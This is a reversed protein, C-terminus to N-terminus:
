TGVITSENFLDALLDDKCAEFDPDSLSYTREYVHISLHGFFPRLLGDRIDAQPLVRTQDGSLWPKRVRHADNPAALANGISFPTHASKPVEAVDMMSQAVEDILATTEWDEPRYIADVTDTVFVWEQAQFDEHNILLLVDLLKAAQLLSYNNYASPPSDDHDDFVSSFTARLETSIMPWFSAMQNPSSELVLARIVMYIEARTASSPSSIFSASLLEELKTQLLGLHAAFTDNEVALLVCSVRRLNLQAKKDSELRAATAGVGFMIGAATPASLRSLLEPLLSKEAFALQRLLPLWGVKVIPMQSCFFRPDNFSDTLEKKWAKTANPIRSIKLLLSLTTTTLNQPFQRSRFMPAIVNSVVNVVVAILRDPDDLLASLAAFNEHLTEEVNDSGMGAALGSPISPGATKERSSSQLKITFIATLLRIFLDALERRMKREEGFNTNEMKASLISVFGILRTLILRHPMPNGLVDRLFTTCDRWIEELVDDELSHAYVGLFAILDSEHLDSSLTSKQSLPLATPNTRSYIANFIAAMTIGPRSGQLTHVLSLLSETKVTEREVLAKVWVHALAEIGELPEAALLNELIRRSRGRIKQSAQQFSALTESADVLDSTQWSWLRFCTRLADQFCLIVTLRSNNTNTNNRAQKAESSLAGSVINGFFGQQLEQSTLTSMGEEETMLREHARALVFDVANLLHSLPYEFNKGVQTQNQYQTKLGDFCLGIQKCFCEVIRMLVSFTSSTYFYTSECTLQLWKQIVDQTSPNGIGNLLCILLDKPPEALVIHGQDLESPKDKSSSPPASNMKSRTEPMNQNLSPEFTVERSRGAAIKSNLIVLLTDLLDSQLLIAQLVLPRGLQAVLLHDIQLEM